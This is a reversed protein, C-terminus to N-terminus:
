QGFAKNIADIASDVHRKLAAPLTSQKEKLLKQLAMRLEGLYESSTTYTNYSFFNMEDAWKNEGIQQLQSSLHNIFDKMNQLDNFHWQMTDVRKWEM